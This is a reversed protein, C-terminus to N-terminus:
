SAADQDNEVVRSRVRRVQGTSSLADSMGQAVTGGKRGVLRPTATLLGVPGSVALLFAGSAQWWGGRWVMLWAGAGIAVLGYLMAPLIARRTAKNAGPSDAFALVFLSLALGVGVTTLWGIWLIITWVWWWM